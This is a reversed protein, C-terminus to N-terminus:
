WNYGIRVRYTQDLEETGEVAGTNVDLVLEAAAEVGYLLPFALGFTTNLVINSTEDLNWIGKHDVYLRSDGGLYNSSVHVDWTSGLYDRDDASVFDESIYALGTEAELEFVKQTFFKRGIYPGVTSRLDLDAFLDQEFSGGGGWYWDGTQIRDYRARITWNEANKIGQAESVEGYGDVRFRDRLSEWRVELRYDLDDTETNGSQSSFGFSGLGTFNYGNGLEWPEPNIRTLQALAYTEAAQQELQLLEGDVKLQPTELVSGDEMQLVLDSNVTMAVIEAQDIELTGAFGTEISVKGVDADKFTGLIVSGDRLEIRDLAFASTHLGAGGLLLLLALMQRWAFPKM